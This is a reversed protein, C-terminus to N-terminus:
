RPIWRGVLGMGDFMYSGDESDNIMEKISHADFHFVDGDLPGGIFRVCTADHRGMGYAAAVSGGVMVSGVIMWWGGITILGAGLSAVVVWLFWGYRRM